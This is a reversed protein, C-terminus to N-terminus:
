IIILKDSVQKTVQHVLVLVYCIIQLLLAGRCCTLYSKRQKTIGLILVGRVAENYIVFEWRLCFFHALGSM